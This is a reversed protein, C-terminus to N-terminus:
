KAFSDIFKSIYELRVDTKRPIFPEPKQFYNSEDALQTAIDVVSREKGYIRVTTVGNITDFELQKNQNLLKEIAQNNGEKKLIELRKQNAKLYVKAQETTDNIAILYSRKAPTLIM